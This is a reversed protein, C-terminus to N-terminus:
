AKITLYMNKSLLISKTVQVSLDGEEQGSFASLAVYSVSGQGTDSPDVDNDDEDADEDVYDDRDEEEASEDESSGDDEDSDEEDSEREAHFSSPGAERCM